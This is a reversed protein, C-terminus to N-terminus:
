LDGNERILFDNECFKGSDQRLYVCLTRYTCCICMVKKRSLERTDGCLWMTVRQNLLLHTSGGSQVWRGSVFETFVVLGFKFLNLYTISIYRM